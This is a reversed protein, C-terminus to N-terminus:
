YEKFYDVLKNESTSDVDKFWFVIASEIIKQDISDGFWNKFLEAYDHYQANIAVYVDNVTTSLPLVGRYRECIEKTKHLDFKEGSHKRGNEIHYMKSVLHKAESETFHKPVDMANRMYRMMKQMGGDEMDHRNFRDFLTDDQDFMDSLSESEGHRRMYFDEMRDMPMFDEKNYKMSNRKYNSMFDKFKRMLEAESRGDTGKNRLYELMLRDM